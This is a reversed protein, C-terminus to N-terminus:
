VAIFPNLGPQFSSIAPQLKFDRTTKNKRVADHFLKVDFVSHLCSWDGNQINYVVIPSSASMRQYVCICDDSSSVESLETGVFELLPSTSIEVVQETGPLLEFVMLLHKKTKSNATESYASEVLILGVVIMVREGCLLIPSSVAPHLAKIGIASWSEAEMKYALLESPGGYEFGWLVYITDKYYISDTWVKGFDDQAPPITASKSFRISWSNTASDYVQAFPSAFPTIVLVKYSKSHDCFLHIISPYGMNPRPPLIRWKKTIINTVYINSFQITDLFCLLSGRTSLKGRTNPVLPAESYPLYSLTLLKEVRKSATNYGIWGEKGIYAPCYSEWKSTVQSVEAQFLRSSLKAKWSKSLTQTQFLYKFPLRAIIKELLDEPTRAWIQSDLDLTNDTADEMVEDDTGHSLFRREKDDELSLTEMAEPLESSTITAM